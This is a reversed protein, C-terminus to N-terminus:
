LRLEELMVSGLEPLLEIGGNNFVIQSFAADDKFGDM